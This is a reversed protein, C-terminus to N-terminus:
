AVQAHAASLHGAYLSNYIRDIRTKDYSKGVRRRMVEGMQRRLAEDALLRAIARAIAASDGVPAIIGGHGTVEDGPSGEILDRCCGVDTAVSPIGAAGAELLVLPQAESISTLVCVDIRPLVSAIDVRGTFSLCPGLGENHAIKRCEAAYVPDEDDPGIILAEVNPAHRRLAACALIFTRVDKIPVVRGILAITPRRATRPITRVASWRAVDVGNPIIRLKEEPAGDAIQLTQNGRYLTVIERAAAYALISLSSFLGGWLDRLTGLRQTISFGDAGSDYIWDALCLEIRRENTYIGHETLVFPRGTALTARAALLGAYGTSIAHYVSADPLPATLVTVLSRLVVRWTWFFDLLPADPLLRQAAAEMASWGARSDLLASQGIGSAALIGILRNLDEVNPRLILAEFHAGIETILRADARRAPRGQGDSDLALRTWAVVNAPVAYRTARPAADPMISVLHFRLHPAAEILAQTWGSVGGAVFPYAGELILCVDARTM